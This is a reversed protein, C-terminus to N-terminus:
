FADSANTELNSSSQIMKPMESNDFPEIILATGVDPSAPRESAKDSRTTSSAACISFIPSM